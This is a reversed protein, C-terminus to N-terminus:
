TEYLSVDADFWLDALTIHVSAAAPGVEFQYADIDGSHDLYGVITTGNQNPHGIRCADSFGDNREPCVDSGAAWAFPAALQLTLLLLALPTARSMTHELM